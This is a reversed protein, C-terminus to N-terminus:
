MGGELMERVKAIASRPRAIIRLRVPEIDLGGVVYSEQAIVQGECAVVDGVLLLVEWEDVAYATEANQREWAMMAELLGREVGVDEGIGYRPGLEGLVGRATPIKAREWRIGLYFAASLLGIACVAAAISRASLRHTM